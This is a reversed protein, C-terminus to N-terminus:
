GLKNYRMAKQSIDILKEKVAAPSHSTPRHREFLLSTYCTLYLLTLLRILLRLINLTPISSKASFGYM